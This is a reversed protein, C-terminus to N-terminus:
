KVEVLKFKAIRVEALNRKAQTYTMDACYLDICEDKTRGLTDLHVIQENYGNESVAAYRIGSAADKDKANIVVYGLAM